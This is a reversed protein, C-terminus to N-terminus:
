KILGHDVSRYVSVSGALTDPTTLVAVYMDGNDDNDVGFDYYFGEHVMVDPGGPRSSFGKITLSPDGFYQFVRVGRHFGLGPIDVYRTM